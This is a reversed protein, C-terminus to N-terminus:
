AVVDLRIINLFSISTQHSKSDFEEPGPVIYVSNPEPMNACEHFVWKTEDALMFRWDSFMMELFRDDIYVHIALPGFEMAEMVAAINTAQRFRDPTLLITSTLEPRTVQQHNVYPKAYMQGVGPIELEGEVTAGAIANFNRIITNLDDTNSQRPSIVQM